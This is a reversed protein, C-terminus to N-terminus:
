LPPPQINLGNPAGSGFPRPLRRGAGNTPCQGCQPTLRARGCRGQGGQWVKANV